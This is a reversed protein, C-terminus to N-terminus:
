HKLSSMQQGTYWIKRGTLLHVEKYSRRQNFSLSLSLSLPPFLITNLPHLFVPSVCLPHFIFPFPFYPSCSSQSILSTVHFLYVYSMFPLLFLRVKKGRRDSGSTVPPVCCRTIDGAGQGGTHWSAWNDYRCHSQWGVDAIIPTEMAVLDGVSKHWSCLGITLESM